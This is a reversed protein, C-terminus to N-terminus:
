WCPGFEKQAHDICIGRNKLYTRRLILQATDSPLQSIVLNAHIQYFNDGAQCYLIPDREFLITEEPLPNKLFFLSLKSCPVNIKLSQLLQWGGRNQMYTRLIGMQQDLFYYRAYKSVYFSINKPHSEMFELPLPLSSIFQFNSDTQWIRKEQGDLVLLTNGQGPSVSVVRLGRQVRNMKKPKFIQALSELTDFKVSASGSLEWKWFQQQTLDFVYAHSKTEIYQDFSFTKKSDLSWGWLPLIWFVFFLINFSYKLAPKFSICLEM